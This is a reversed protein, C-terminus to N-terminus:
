KNKHYLHDLVVAPDGIEENCHHIGHQTHAEKERRGRAMPNM